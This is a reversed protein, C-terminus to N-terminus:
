EGGLQPEFSFPIFDNVLPLRRKDPNAHDYARTPMNVFLSDVIGVNQVAHFVGKPIIVLARNQEGICIDNIKGYTPSNPRSDFLVFRM